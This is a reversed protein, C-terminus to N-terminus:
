ASELYREVEWDSVKTRYEEIEAWKARWFAEYTLPGLANQVVEDAELERM